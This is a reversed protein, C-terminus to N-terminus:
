SRAFSFAMVVIGILVAVGIITGITDLYGTSNEVGDLGSQSINYEEDAIAYTYTVNVYKSIDDIANTILIGHTPSCSYKSTALETNDTDNTVSTCTLAATSSGSYTLSTWTANTWTTNEESATTTPIDKAIQTQFSSLSIGVAAGIFAILALLIIAGKMDELRM